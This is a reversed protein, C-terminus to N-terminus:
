RNLGMRHAGEISRELQTTGEPREGTALTVLDDTVFRIWGGLGGPAFMYAGNEMATRMKDIAQEQDKARAPALFTRMATDIAPPTFFDGKAIAGLNGIPASQSFGSAGFLKKERDSLGDDSNEGMVHDAAELLLWPAVLQEALRTSGALVGKTRYAEVAQGLTATPWKSFASFLPGMTRGYESMSARNYQYQTSNIIHNSLERVMEGIDGEAKANAVASRVSSPMRMLASEALKSGRLLDNAMMESAGFAIGRNVTEAMEYPKMGIEGVARLGKRLFQSGESRLLGEDLYNLSGGVFRRPQLGMAEMRRMYKPLNRVGGIRSAGRFFLLAGYPGGFEPLTKTFTQTLNMILSRPNSGLLNPYVQKSLDQLLTPIMKVTMLAQRQYESNASRIRKDIADHFVDQSRSFYEAATGKRTGMLDALLRETYDAQSTAKLNKLMSVVNRMHDIGQRLYLHRLTNTAWKDALKYMNTERAWMPIQDERELAARAVTELKQRGEPNLFTDNLILQVQGPTNGQEGSLMHMFKLTSSHDPSGNIVRNFVDDPVSALNTYRQGSLQEADRVINNVRDAITTRLTRTDVLQAPIYNPREKIALPPLGDEEALKNIRRVGDAFYQQFPKWAAEQQPTLPAGAEVRQILDAGERAERDVGAKRLDSFVGSLEQRFDERPFSMRNIGRNIEKHAAEAGLGKWKEDMDRFVYQADSVFNLAKQAFSPARTQSIGKSTVYEEATRTNLLDQLRKGAYEPGQGSREAQGAWARLMARPDDAQAIRRKFVDVAMDDTATRLITNAVDQTAAQRVAEPAEGAHKKLFAAGATTGDDLLDSVTGPAYKMAVINAQEPTLEDAAGFVHDRIIETAPQREDVAQRVGQEFDAGGRAAVRDVVEEAESAVAAAAKRAARGALLKEVGAAAGGLAAGAGTGILTGSIEDGTRSGGFGGAAGVAAGMGVKAATSAGKAVGGIPAILEGGKQLYSSRGSSLEQVEDLAKSMEPTQSMKYLKQPIGLAVSGVAGAARKLEPESVFSSGEMRAGFYPALEQLRAPDVGHKAAISAIEDPKTYEAGLVPRDWMSRNEIEADVASPPPAFLHDPPPAFLDDAPQASRSAGVQTPAVGEVPPPPAFLLQEDGEEVQNPPIGLTPQARNQEAVPPPAFLQDDDM